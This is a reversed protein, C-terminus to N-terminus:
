ENYNWFYIKDQKTIHGSEILNNLCKYFMSSPNNVDLKLGQEQCGKVIEALRASRNKILFDKIYNEQKSLSKKYYRPLSNIYKEFNNETFFKYKSKIDDNNNIM